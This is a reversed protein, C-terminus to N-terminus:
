ENRTTWPGNHKSTPDVFDECYIRDIHPVYSEFDMLWQWGKVADQTRLVEALEKAADVQEQWLSHDARYTQWDSEVARRASGAPVDKPLVDPQTPEKGPPKESYTKFWEHNLIWLVSRNFEEETNAPLYINGHRGKVILVGPLWEDSM